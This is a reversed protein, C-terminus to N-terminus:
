FDPTQRSLGFLSDTKKQQTIDNIICLRGTKGSPLPILTESSLINILRGEKSVYVLEQRILKGEKLSRLNVKPQESSKEPMILLSMNKGILEDKAYGTMKLFVANAELINRKEDELIIGWPSLEFLKRYREEKEALEMQSRVRDNINEVMALLNKVKGTRDSITSLILSGWIVQGNKRIYQKEKKYIRIKGEIIKLINEEDEAHNDPHSLSRFTLKKLEAEPYGMLNCFSSNVMEFLYDKGIIAMGVPSEEFIRRFREESTRFAEEARIRGIIEGMMSATSELFIRTGDPFDEISRSALLMSAIVEDEYRIPVVACGLFGEKRITQKKFLKLSGFPMYQNRSEQLISDSVSDAKITQIAARLEESFGTHAALTWNKGRHETLLIAGADISDAKLVMELLQNLAEQTNRIDNLLLGLDHQIHVFDETHRHERRMSSERIEREIASSLRTLNNKMLYDHAGRKMMGVAIDEGIEGSVVIFPIDFGSGQLVELAHPASFSPLNYDALIVDWTGRLLADKMELETEVREHTVEYGALELNRLIFFADNPNDEIILVSIKREM